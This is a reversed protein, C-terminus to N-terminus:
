VPTTAACIVIDPASQEAALRLLMADALRSVPRQRLSRFPVADTAFNCSSYLPSLAGGYIINQQVLKNRGETAREEDIWDPQYWHDKPIVGFTVNADTLVSVRRQRALHDINFVLRSPWLFLSALRKFDETFEVENLFVWPYQYNRFYPSSTLAPICM